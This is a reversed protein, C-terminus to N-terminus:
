RGTVIAEKAQETKLRDNNIQDKRRVYETYTITGRLYERELNDEMEKYTVYDQDIIWRQMGGDRGNVCGAVLCALFVLLLVKRM